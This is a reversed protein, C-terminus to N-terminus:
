VWFNYKCNKQQTSWQSEQFVESLISPHKPQMTMPLMLELSSILMQRGSTLTSFMVSILKWSTSSDFSITGHMFICRLTNYHVAQKVKHMLHFLCLLSSPCVSFPIFPSPPPSLFSFHPSHLLFLLLYVLLFLLLFYSCIFLCFSYSFM